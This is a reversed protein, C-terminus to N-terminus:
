LHILKSLAGVFAKIDVRDQAGLYYVAGYEIDELRASHGMFLLITFLYPTLTTPKVLPATPYGLDSLCGFAGNGLQM